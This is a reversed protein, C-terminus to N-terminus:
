KERHIWVSVGVTGYSTEVRENAYDIHARLTHLPIQGEKYWETRAIDAGGLRGSLKIKVGFAGADMASQLMKKMARRFPVRKRLQRSIERAILKADIDPHKIEAIDISVEKGSLQRLESRLLDIESGKRGIVLGPRATHITLKIQESMRAIDIRATGLASSKKNLFNRIREDEALLDGYHKKSAFWTSRWDRNVVLRFSIPSVKQGM